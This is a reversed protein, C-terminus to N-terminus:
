GAHALLSAPKEPGKAHLSLGAKRIRERLHELFCSQVPSPRWDARMTLGDAGRKIMTAIPLAVLGSLQPELALELPTLLTVRDSSALLAIQTSVSTADICSTPSHHENAFLQEFARRRQTGAGPLIWDVKALDSLSVRPQRSLPHGYRAVVCYPEEFLAEEIVDDVGSPCKLGGFM